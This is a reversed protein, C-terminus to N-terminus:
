PAACGTLLLGAVIANGATSTKLALLTVLLLAVPTFITTLLLNVATLPARLRVGVAMHLLGAAVYALALILGPLPLAGALLTLNNAQGAAEWGLQSPGAVLPIVARVLAFAVMGILTAVAALLINRIAGPRILRVLNRRM